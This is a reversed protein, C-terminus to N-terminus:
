GTVTGSRSVEPCRRAATARPTRPPSSSGACAKLWCCGRWTPSPAPGRQRGPRRDHRRGLQLPIQLHHQGRCLRGGSPWAAPTSSRATAWIRSSTTRAASRRWARGVARGRGGMQTLGLLTGVKNEPKMLVAMGHCGIGGGVLPARPPGQRLPQPSLRLLLVADAGHAPATRAAPAAAREEQWRALADIPHHRTLPRILSDADPRPSLEGNAAFLEHGTTPRAWSTPGCPMGTCCITSRARSSM